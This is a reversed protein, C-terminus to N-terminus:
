FLLLTGLYLGYYYSGLCKWIDNKIYDALSLWIIIMFAIHVNEFFPNTIIERHELFTKITMEINESDILDVIFSDANFNDFGYLSYLIKAYDYEKLGYISSNGFYGRPDILLINNNNENILINSFQCDGHIINYKYNDMMIENKDINEIYQQYYDYIIQSCKNIITEFSQIKIKNVNKIEGFYDLLPQINNKRQVVKDFTEIKLNEFFFEKEITIESLAHLTKIKDFVKLLIPKSFGYKNFYQYLPITDEKYEMLFGSEYMEYIKPIFDINIDGKKEMYKKMHLYWQKEHNIIIKGKKEIATKLLKNDETIVINNFYRCHFLKKNVKQFITNLKHEDGYDIISNIKYNYIDGIKDLFEVMDQNYLNDSLTFPKYNQFYYIGVINGNNEPSNIIKNEDNLYYRCYCNNTFVFINNSNKNIFPIQLPDKPFIDCWTICLDNIIKDKLQNNLINYLTFATGDYSNYHIIEIKHAFDPLISNIYFTTISHFKSHIVLYIKKCYKEWYNIIHYLGTNNDINVLYKPIM